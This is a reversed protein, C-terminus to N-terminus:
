EKNRMKKKKIHLWFTCTGKMESNKHSFFIQTTEVQFDISRSDDTVNIRYEDYFQQRVCMFCKYFITANFLYFILM